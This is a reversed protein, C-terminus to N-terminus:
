SRNFLLLDAEAQEDAALAAKLAPLLKQVAARCAPALSELQTLQRQSEALIQQQLTRFRVTITKQDGPPIAAAPDFRFQGVVQEKWAVLKGTFVDGFGKIGRILHWDVDAASYVGHSMLTQKRGAGIQPIEADTLLHLRLHRVLANAEAQSTLRQLESQHRPALGRCDAVLKQVAGSLLSHDRRYRQVRDRWEGEIEVLEHRAQDRAQRRRRHERHWPSQWREYALWAGFIAAGLLGVVCYFVHFYGLPVLAACVATAVTLVNATKRSDALGEPLAVPVGRLSAQRDRARAYVFEGPRCAALRRLVEQLKAEDVAFSGVGGAAGFYYEPGGKEALRCWVCAKQERWYKHGPDAVCEALQQELRKLAGLWEAPRPRVGDRESGREFSRRFLTGVDAPIDAFTPTHPPPDMDLSRAMPGQAFRFGAILEEFSPDGQGRYIGAYPHRGVFLLQYVLVALGFRDHNETRVLGRLSKGQLEPPTYHPVGVECLFEKGGARVQFSDCDILRVLAQPSVQVNSQNVDGVLCGAKHVEDFAAALNFAARVQFAWTARSFFKLRQVPNYLHQMPQCDVLRPMVFGAVQRTKSHLLLESPWAALALLHPNALAIM